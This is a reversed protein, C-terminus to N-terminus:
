HLKKCPGAYNLFLYLQIPAMTELVAHFVGSAASADTDSLTFSQASVGGPYSTHPPKKQPQFVLQFGSTSADVRGCLVKVRWFGPVSWALQSEM